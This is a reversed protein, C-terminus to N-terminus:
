RRELLEFSKVIEAAFQAQLVHYQRFCGLAQEFAGIQEHVMSLTLYGGVVSEHNGIRNGITLMTEALYRAQRPLHRALM